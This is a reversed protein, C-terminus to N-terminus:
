LPRHHARRLRRRLRKGRRASSDLWRLFSLSKDVEQRSELGTDLFQSTLNIPFRLEELKLIIMVTDEATELQSQTEDLRTMRGTSVGGLGM